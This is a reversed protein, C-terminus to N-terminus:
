THPSQVTKTRGTILLLSTIGSAFALAAGLLMVRRFGQVFSENIASRVADKMSPTLQEPIVAGALNIRQNALSSQVSAPLELASLRLDLSRNFVSLM